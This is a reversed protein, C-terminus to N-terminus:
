EIGHEVGPEEVRQTFLQVGDNGAFNFAHGVVQFGDHVGQAPHPAFLLEADAHLDQGAAQVGFGGAAGIGAQGVGAYVM